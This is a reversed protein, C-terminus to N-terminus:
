RGTRSRPRSPSAGAARPSTRSCACGAWRRSAARRPAKPGRDGGLRQQLTWGLVQLRGLIDWVGETLPRGALATAADFVGAVVYTALVREGEPDDGAPTLEVAATTPVYFLEGTRRRKIVIDALEDPADFNVLRAPLPM